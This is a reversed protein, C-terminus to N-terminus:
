PLRITIQGEDKTCSYDLELDNLRKILEDGPHNYSNNKACSITTYKPNILTLFEKSSSYNSGHHACKYWEITGDFWSPNRKKLKVFEEMVGQEALFGMDGTLFGDFGKHSYLLVLSNENKDNLLSDEGPSLVAIYTKNIKILDGAKLFSVETGNKDALAKIEEVETEEKATCPFFIEGVPYREKLLYILGSIHDMDTHSVFWYDIKRIGKEYLFPKLTYEGLNKESSSGGDVFMHNLMGESIFIGDGQGVDLVDIRSRIDSPLVLCLSLVLAFAMKECYRDKIWGKSQLFYKELFCNKDRSCVRDFSCRKHLHFLAYFFIAVRLPSMSGVIVTGFPLYSFAICLFHYLYLIISDVVLVIKGLPLILCGLLGGVFGDLLLIGAAPLVLLNLILSAPYIVHFGYAMAPLTFFTIYIGPMIIKAIKGINKEIDLYFCIGIVASFSLLFASNYIYFPNQFLLVIAVLSVASLMDYTRGIVYSMMLIFLMFVARKASISKGSFDLYSLMIAGTVPAGIYYTIKLKRLLKYIGLGLISIHLGSIALLHGIGNETFLEKEDRNELSKDGTVMSSVIGAFRENLCKDYIATMNQKLNWLSQSIYNYKKSKSLIKMISAKAAIGKGLYYKEEDFGGDNRSTELAEVVGEFIIKEGIRFGNSDSNVVLGAPCVNKGDIACSTFYVKTNGSKIEV